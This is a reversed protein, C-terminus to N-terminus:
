KVIGTFAANEAFKLFERDKLAKAKLSGDKGFA